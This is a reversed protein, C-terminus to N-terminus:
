GRDNDPLSIIIQKGEKNDNVNSRNDIKDLAQILKIKKDTDDTDNILETLLEMRAEKDLVKKGDKEEELEEIRRKMLDKGYNKMYQGYSIKYGDRVMFEYIDKKTTGKDRGVWLQCQQEYRKNELGNSM